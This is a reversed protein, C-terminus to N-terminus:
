TPHPTTAILSQFEQPTVPRSFYWGQGRKCGQRLLLKRQAETEIGEALTVMGFEQALGIVARVLRPDGVGNDGSVFSRDIKLVDVPLRRLMSLSSFGTGFDDMALLMGLSRLEHLLDIGRDLNSMVSSETVELCLRNAPFDHRALVDAVAMSLRPDNLQAPSLNVSVTYGSPWTSAIEISHELMQLGLQMILGTEEAVGIFEDPQVPGIVPDHWRALAEASVITGTEIEVIPQLHPIILGQDLALPLRQMIENRRVVESRAGDDFKAFRARGSDKARYMATDADRLLSGPFAALDGSTAIGISATVALHLGQLDVPENVAAQLRGAISELDDINSIGEVMVIFEDGGFRAVFADRRTASQLRAGLESLLMDGTAHGHSDNILKFRDIDVFLLGVEQDTDAARVLAEGLELELSARNGLGTLPDTLSAIVRDHEALKRDTVDRVYMAVCDLDPEDPLDHFVVELWAPGSGVLYTEVDITERRHDVFGRFAEACMERIVPQVDLPILDLWANGLLQEPAIGLRRWSDTAFSVEGDRDMLLAHDSGHRTVARLMAKSERRVSEARRRLVASTIVDAISRLLGVEASLFERTTHVSDFGIFGFTTGNALLPVALLSQIGQAMLMEREQRHDPLAAVDPIVVELGLDFNEIWLGAMEIPVGQLNEIEPTIGEACWEHTNDAVDEDFEFAYVRDVELFTGLQFLAQDIGHDLDDVALWVFEAIIAHVLRQMEDITDLERQLERASSLDTM